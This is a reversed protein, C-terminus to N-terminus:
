RQPRNDFFKPKRTGARVEATVDVFRGGAFALFTANPDSRVAQSDPIRLYYYTLNGLRLPEFPKGGMRIIELPEYGRAPLHADAVLHYWPAHEAQLFCALRPDGPPLFQKVATDAMERFHFAREPIDLLYVKCGPAPAPLTALAALAAREYVAVHSETHAAYDRGVNRSTAALGAIALAFGVGVALRVGRAVTGARLMEGAAAMVMAVAAWPMYYFRSSLLAGVDFDGPRHSPLPIQGMITAPALVSMALIAAALFAVKGVGPRGLRRTAAAYLFAAAFLVLAAVWAAIAAAGGRQVVFFGPMAEVWKWVGRAILTPGHGFLAETEPSHRLVFPRIGLGALVVAVVAIALGLRARRSAATGPWALALVAVAAIGFGTEKSFISAAICALATAFTAGSPSTVYREVAILGALGFTLAFLDFRICLWAAAQFTSPHAVFALAALAAVPASVRLRALLLALLVGNVAHVAMNFAYHLAANSGFAQDTFWWIFMVLPRFFFSGVSDGLLLAWPSDLHGLAVFLYDDSYAAANRLPYWLLAAVVLCGAAALRL